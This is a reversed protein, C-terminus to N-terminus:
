RRQSLKVLLEASPFRDLYKETSSLSSHGLAIQITRLDKGESLLECAFAHRLGHPHVRKKIGALAAIRPLARRWYNPRTPTGRLTGVLFDGSAFRMFRDRDDIWKEVVARSIADLVVFRQKDRKGRQVNIKGGKLDVDSVKLACLEGVRIGSRWMLVIGARNRWATLGNGADRIMREIEERTLLDRNM